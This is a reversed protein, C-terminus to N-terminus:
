RRGGRRILQVIRRARWAPHEALEAGASALSEEMARVCRGDGVVELCALLADVGQAGLANPARGLRLAVEVQAERVKHHAIALCAAVVLRPDDCLVASRLLIMLGRQEPLAGGPGRALAMAVLWAAAEDLDELLPDKALTAWGATLWASVSDLPTAEARAWREATAPRLRRAQPASEGPEALFDLDSDQSAVDVADGQPAAGDLLWAGLDTQHGTM